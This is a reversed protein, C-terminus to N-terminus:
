WGLKRRYSRGTTIGSPLCAGSRPGAILWFIDVPGALYYVRARVVPVVVIPLSASPVLRHKILQVNAGERRFSSKKRDDALQVM